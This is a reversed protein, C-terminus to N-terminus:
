ENPVEKTKIYYWYKGIRKVTYQPLNPEDASYIYGEQEWQVKSTEDAVVDIPIGRSAMDSVFTYGDISIIDYKSHITDIDSNWDGVIYREWEAREWPNYRMPLYNRAVAILWVIMLFLLLLITKKKSKKINVLLSIVVFVLSALSLAVVVNFSPAEFPLFPMFVMLYSLSTCSLVLGTNSLAKKM